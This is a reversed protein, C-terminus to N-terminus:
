QIKAAEQLNGSDVLLSLFKGLVQKDKPHIEYLSRLVDLSRAHNGALSLLESLVLLLTKNTKPSKSSLLQNILGQLIDGSIKHNVSSRLLFILYDDNGLLQNNLNLALHEFAAKPNKKALLIQARLFISYSDDGKVQGLAEDFKKDRL